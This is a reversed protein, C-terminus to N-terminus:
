ESEPAARGQKGETRRPPAPESVHHLGSHVHLRQESPLNCWGSGVWLSTGWAWWAALKTELARRVIWAHRAHLDIQSRLFHAHRAVQQPVLKAARWFNSIFGCLDGLIEDGPQGPRALLVAASGAFPEIYHQVAGLRSWIARAINHKCGYFHFPPRERFAEPAIM